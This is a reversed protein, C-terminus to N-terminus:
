LAGGTLWTTAAPDGCRGIVVMKYCCELFYRQQEQERWALFEPTAYQRFLGDNKPLFPVRGTEALTELVSARIAHWRGDTDNRGAFASLLGDWEAPPKTALTNWRREDREQAWRPAIISTVNAAYWQRAALVIAEHDITTKGIERVQYMRAETLLQQSM